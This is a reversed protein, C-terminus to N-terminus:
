DLIHSRFFNDMEVADVGEGTNDNSSFVKSDKALVLFPLNSFFRRSKVSYNASTQFDVGSRQNLKTFLQCAKLCPELM